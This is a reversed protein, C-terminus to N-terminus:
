TWVVNPRRPWSIAVPGALSWNLVQVPLTVCTTYSSRSNHTVKTATLPPRTTMMMLNIPPIIGLMSLSRQALAM